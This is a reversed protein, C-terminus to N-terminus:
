LAPSRIPRAFLHSWGPHHDSTTADLGLTAILQERMKTNEPNFIKDYSAAMETWVATALVPLKRGTAAIKKDALKAEIAQQATFWKNVGPKMWNTLIWEKSQGVKKALVTAIDANLSDLQDAAERLNSSNGRVETSGEHVMMRIGDAVHGPLGNWASLVM